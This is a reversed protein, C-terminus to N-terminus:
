LRCKEIENEQFPINPGHVFRILAPAFRARRLQLLLRSILTLIPSLLGSAAQSEEQCMFLDDIKDASLALGNCACKAVEFITAQNGKVAGDHCNGIPFRQCVIRM